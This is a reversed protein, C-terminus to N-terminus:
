SHFTSAWQYLSKVVIIEFLKLALIAFLPSLDIGGMRWPPLLGRFPRLLPETASAIFRVLPNYPNPEVWSLIARAIVLVVAIFCLQGLLWAAAEIVNGVLFM